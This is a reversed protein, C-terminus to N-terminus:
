GPLGVWGSASSLWSVAGAPLAVPSLSASGIVVSPTIATTGLAQNAVGAATPTLTLTSGDLGIDFVAVNGVLKGNVSVNADIVGNQTDILLDRLDLTGKSDSLELGSGQHLIVDVGSGPGETGGTIPFAAVPTGSTDVTASGLPTVAVGLSQLTSASTLTVSTDGGIIPQTATSPSSAGHELAQLFRLKDFDIGLSSL